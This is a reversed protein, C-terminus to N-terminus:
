NSVSLSVTNSIATPGTGGTATIVLVYSATSSPATTSGSTQSGSGSCGMAAGLAAFMLLLSWLRSRRRGPWGFLVVCALGMGAAAPAFMKRMRRLGAGTGQPDRVHAAGATITLKTTQPTVGDLAMTAPQFNCTTGAPQGSCNFTVNGAFGFGPGPSVLVTVTGPTTSSVTVDGPNVGIQFNPNGIYVSSAPASSGTFNSDGSYTATISNAGSMLTTTVLTALEASVKVPSGLAAGAAFFQVTGGPLGFGQAPFVIAQLFVSTNPLAGEPVFLLIDTAGKTVSVTMAAASSPQFGPDGSYAASIQHTGIALATEPVDVNGQSNLPTKSLLTTSGNFADSFTITGTAIGQKSNGAVSAQLDLEQSYTIATASPAFTLTSPEPNVTVAVGSSTSPAFTGDGAYSATVTYSGGALSTISSSLSGSSLSGLLLNGTGGTLLAVEGTPTGAGGSTSVNVAATVAQGHTITAPSVTLTTMTSRLGITAWKAVLNAANVSGLGTALDYGPAASAGAQGPVTNNGQTIDNFICSSQPPESANCNGANQAAALPYLVFDAQGQRSQTSQVVLAMIGAFAPAAASTGGVVEANVLEGHSGTLCSGDQCLLYGDHQAAAALSVDPVDRQGDNPVGPAAQWSPKAYLSSAGGGSSFLTISLCQTADSCSENWVQEPIYGLVSSQDPGNTASWYSSDAGNENFQTGGVAVNFPTSALGSVAAGKTASGAYPNDCGAQGADGTSVIATMGEAAAQAWLNNYFANEAAGLQSECEGFSTSMVPALDNDVIYEASLDVGDTTNTSASVVFKITANPAVAGSWEVDLDAETEDQSGTFDGPDPGDVIIQPDNAPLGFALRFIQIDSLLINNRGVIAISEGAGNTGSKYLPATNYIRSFDGPAVYHFTGAPGPYTFQPQWKSTGAVRTATGLVRIPSPKEFNHLTSVGAVLHALAAPIQPEAANAYHRVGEVLYAHMPTHFAEKVLGATGSFEIALGGRAIRNVRFGRAELWSRVTQLDAKAAGFRQAFEEPSLWAHFSPSSRDQQDTILTRLGTADSPRLVLLMRDMPLDARVEGRDNEATALPHRNGSLTVLDAVRRSNGSASVEDTFEGNAPNASQRLAPDESAAAIAAPSVGSAHWQQARLDAPSLILAAIAPFLLVTSVVFRSDRVRGRM